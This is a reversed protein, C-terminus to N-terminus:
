PKEKANIWRYTAYPQGLVTYRQVIEPNDRELAKRDLSTKGKSYVPAWKKGKGDLIGDNENAFHQCIEKVAKITDEARKSLLLAQAAAEHTLAEAKTFPELMTAALDPPLLWQPCRKRGYCSSCHSGVSYEGGHNKAAARVREWNAEHEESWLDVYGSWQWEGETCDWIGTYYGDAGVKRAFAIAYGILQLSYPGDPAAYATKKLDGIFAVTKGGVVATWCMDATGRVLLGWPAEVEAWALYAGDSGLALPVEHEAMEYTLELAGIVVPTPRKMEGVTEREDPTLRAMFESAKPDDSFVAHTATGIAAARGGGMSEGLVQGQGCFQLVPLASFRAIKGSM